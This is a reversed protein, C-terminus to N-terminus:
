TIRPTRRQSCRPPLVVGVPVTGAVVAGRISAEVPGTYEHM